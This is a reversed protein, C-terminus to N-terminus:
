KYQIYVAGVIVLRALVWFFLSMIHQACRTVLCEFSSTGFCEIASVQLDQLCAKPARVFNSNKEIMPPRTQVM